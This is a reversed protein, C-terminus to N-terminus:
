PQPRSEPDLYTFPGLVGFQQAFWIWAEDLPVWLYRWQVKTEYWAARQAYDREAWSHDKWLWGGGFPGMGFPLDGFGGTTSITVLKHTQAGRALVLGGVVQGRLEAYVEDQEWIKREPRAHFFIEHLDYVAHLGFHAEVAAADIDDGKCAEQVRASALQLATLGLLFAPTRDGTM